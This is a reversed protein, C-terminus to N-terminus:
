RSLLTSFYFWYRMIKHPPDSGPANLAQFLMKFTQVSCYSFYKESICMGTLSCLYNIPDTPHMYIYIYTNVYIFTYLYVCM